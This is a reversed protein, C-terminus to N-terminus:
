QRTRRLTQSPLEAFHRKYDLSFQSFHWFGHRVAIDYVGTQPDTCAKLERRVRNLRIARWYSLPSTGLVDHFCDNLKRRSVGVARCVELMSVPADSHALVLECARDVIRKRAGGQAERIPQAAPLLDAIEVLLADELARCAAADAFLAPRRMVAEDIVAMLARLRAVAEGSTEVVRMQHWVSASLEMGLSAALTTILEASMYLGRFEFDRPTCMDIDADFCAIVRGGELAVGNCSYDAEASWPLGLGFSGSGLRGYQRVKQSTFERFVDVRPLSVQTFRGEFAGATIQDYNLRWRGLSACHEDLDASIAEVVPSGADGRRAALAATPDAAASPPSLRM